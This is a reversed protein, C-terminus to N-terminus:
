TNNKGLQKAFEVDLQSIRKAIQPGHANVFTVFADLLMPECLRNSEGAADVLVLCFLGNGTLTMSYLANGSRRKLRDLAASAKTSRASPRM